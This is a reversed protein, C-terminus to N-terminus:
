RTRSARTELQPQSIPAGSICTPEFAELRRLGLRGADDAQPCISYIPSEAPMVVHRGGEFEQVTSMDTAVVANPRLARIRFQLTAPEYNAYSFCRGICPRDVVHTLPNWPWGPDVAAVVRDGPSLRSVLAAVHREIENLRSWDVYLCIFFSAAGLTAVRLVFLRHRTLGGAALLFVGAALSLRQPIYAFPHTWTQLQIASPLVAIAFGHLIWLHATLDSGISGRNLREFLLGLSLLLIAGAPILYKADFIWAQGAGTMGLLGDLSIAQDLSWRGDLTRRVFLAVIGLCALAATLITWRFRPSLRRAVHVYALVAFVWLVAAGHALIALLALPIAGVVKGRSPNWLLALIAFSLGMALYFNLFGLHFVLGYSLVGLIPALHWPRRGSAVSLFAFSSWFFILIAAACVLREAWIAGATSMLFELALDALTNTRSAVITLGNAAGTRIVGALWANYLHSSLDGAQIHEQWFCPIILLGTASAIRLWEISSRPSVAAGTQPAARFTVAAEM